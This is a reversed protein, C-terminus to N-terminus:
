SRVWTTGSVINLITQGNVGYKKGLSVSGFGWVGKRYDRRIERVTHWTLKATPCEDARRGRNLGLAFSHRTNEGPTVYELNQLKNCTKIGNKHNVQKGESCLGVFSEMMLVHIFKRIRQHEFTMCVRPYGNSIEPKLVRGVWTGDGNKGCGPRARRVRGFNSVEYYGLTNLVERWGERALAAWVEQPSDLSM